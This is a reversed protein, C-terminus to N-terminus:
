VARVYVRTGNVAPGGASDTMSVPTGDFYDGWERPHAGDHAMLAKVIADRGLEIARGHMAPTVDCPFTVTASARGFRDIRAVATPTDM